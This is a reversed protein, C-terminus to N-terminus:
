GKWAQPLLWASLEAERVPGLAQQTPESGEASQGLTIAPCPLPMVM